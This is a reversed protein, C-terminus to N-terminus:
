DVHAVEDVLDTQVYALFQKVSHSLAGSNDIMVAGAPMTFAKARELREQIQQENERGRARLRQALVSPECHVWVPILKIDDQACIRVVEPLAQRSGNVVVRIGMQLWQRVETGIAYDLQHSQWSLWFLGLSKRLAFEATSLRVFNESADSHERTIYRHAFVIPKGALALRAAQMLADKGAGSPGIVYFLSSM